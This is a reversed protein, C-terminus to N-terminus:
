VAVFGPSLVSSAVGTIIVNQRILDLIFHHSFITGTRESFIVFLKYFYLTTNNNNNNNFRFMMVVNYDLAVELYTLYFCLNHIYFLWM